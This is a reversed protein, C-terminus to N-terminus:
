PLLWLVSSNVINRLLRFAGAGHAEAFLVEFQEQQIEGSALPAVGYDFEITYPTINTFTVNLTYNASTNHTYRLVMNIHETASLTEQIEQIPVLLEIIRETDTFALVIGLPTFILHLEAEPKTARGLDFIIL